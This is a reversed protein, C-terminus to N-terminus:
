TAPQEVTPRDRPIDLTPWREKLEQLITEVGEGVENGGIELTHLNPLRKVDLTSLLAAVAESKARNGGLDLHSIKFTEEKIVAAIANFGDCGLNNNFLRLTSIDCPLMAKVGNIGCNTNSLDCNLVKVNGAQLSKSLNIVGEEDISNDALCLNDLDKLGTAIAHSFENMGGPGFNNGTIDLASLGHCKRGFVNKAFSQLGDDGLSCKKLNLTKLLSHGGEESSCLSSLSGGGVAGIRNLSVDLFMSREITGSGTLTESLTSIGEDCLDCNSLDLHQLNPFPDLKRQKASGNAAVCFAM